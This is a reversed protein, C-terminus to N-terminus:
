TSIMPLQTSIKVKHFTEWIAKKEPETEVWVVSRFIFTGAMLERLQKLSKPHTVAVQALTRLQDVDNVELKECKETGILFKQFVQQSVIQGADEDEDEDDDDNRQEQISL